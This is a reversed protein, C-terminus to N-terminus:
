KIWDQLYTEDIVIQTEHNTFYRRFREDRSVSGIYWPFSFTESINLKKCESLTPKLNVDLLSVLPTTPLSLNTKM